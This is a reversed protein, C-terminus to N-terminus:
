SPHILGELFVSLRRGREKTYYLFLEDKARTIAVYLLRREEELAKPAGAEKSPIIGQNVDPLFVRDFELGKASHMTLIRVGRQEETQTWGGTEKLSLQRVFNKVSIGTDSQKYQKFYEQIANAQSIWRRATRDDTTKQHLYTDYGLTKRFFAVALHPSLGAAIKLQGFLLHLQSLMAINQTYYQKLTNEAVKESILAARSIFRNPKNMFKMFDNRNNGEYLYALFSVIDEIIFGHFLDSDKIKKGKVAIGGERLMEGYQMVELNTRLIIATNELADPGLSSLASLLRIEEEKRTDFCLATIRGGKQAPHFEKQFRHTNRSIMAGALTVIQEKCRYNDTLLIQRCNPYDVMFQRMIGPSAGRFGYIAQDDDGVVFLNDAPGALLKLIEYQPFNIDQFEDALIYRFTEQYKLCVAKNDHLLALCRIIMDDFDLFGQERLYQDYEDKISVIDEYSFERNNQKDCWATNLIVTNELIFEECAEQGLNKMRSIINQLRTISDYDCASAFGRNGMLVGLLNRKDNEKMLSASGIGGSQRLINYCISHFTGFNVDCWADNNRHSSCAAEYREKMENAAAKTYTIVLIEEPPIHYHTILYLIRQIITFTKGSGPGAIIQAPGSLHKIAQEQAKSPARM